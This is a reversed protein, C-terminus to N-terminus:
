HVVRFALYLGCLQVCVREDMLVTAGHLHLLCTGDLPVVERELGYKRASVCM